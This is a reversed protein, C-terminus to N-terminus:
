ENEADYEIFNVEDMDVIVEIGLTVVPCTVYNLIDNALVFDSPDIIVMSVDKCKEFIAEFEEIYAVPRHIIQEGKTALRQMSSFRVLPEITTNLIM